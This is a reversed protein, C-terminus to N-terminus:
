RLLPQFLGGGGGASKGRSVWSSGALSGRAAAGAFAGAALVAGAGFVRLGTRKVSGTVGTAGAVVVRFGTGKDSGSAVSRDALLRKRMSRRVRRDSGGGASAAGGASVIM